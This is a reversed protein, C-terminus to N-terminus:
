LNSNKEPVFLANEEFFIIPALVNRSDSWSFVSFCGLNELLVYDINYV